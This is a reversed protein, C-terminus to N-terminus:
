AEGGAPLPELDYLSRVRSLVGSASRDCRNECRTPYGVNWNPALEDHRVIRYPQPFHCRTCRAPRFRRFENDLIATLMSLSVANKLNPGQPKALGM